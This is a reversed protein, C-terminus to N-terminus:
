IYIFNIIGVISVFVSASTTFIRISFLYVGDPVSKNIYYFFIILTLLYYTFAISSVWQVAKILWWLSVMRIIILIFTNNRRVYDSRSTPVDPYEIGVRILITRYVIPNNGFRCLASVGPLM